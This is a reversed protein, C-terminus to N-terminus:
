NMIVTRVYPIIFGTLIMLPITFFIVKEIFQIRKVTKRGRGLSIATKPPFSLLIAIFIVFGSIVYFPPDITLKKTEPKYNETELKLMIELAKLNEDPTLGDKLILTAQDKLLIKESDIYTTKSTSSFLISIFIFAFWWQMPNLTKWARIYWKPKLDSAWALLLGFAREATASNKPYVSVSLRYDSLSLSAETLKGKIKLSFGLPSINIIDTHSKAHSFSEVSVSKHQNFDIALERKTEFSDGYIDKIKKNKEEDKLKSFESKFQLKNYESFNEKNIIECLEDAISDLTKLNEETVIIPGYIYEHGSIIYNNM